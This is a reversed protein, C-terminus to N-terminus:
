EKPVINEMFELIKSSPIIYGLNSHKGSVIRSPIGLLCGKADVALGGSNGKDIQASTLIYEDTISSIIGETVILNYTDLGLEPYGLITVSEGLEPSYNECSYEPFSQTMDGMLVGEKNKEAAYIKLLAIDYEESDDFTLPRARYMGKPAGTKGNVFIVLCGGESDYYYNEDDQPFIHANTLVVGKSTLISGSGGSGPIEKNTSPCYINVVSEASDQINYVSEEFFLGYALITSYIGTIILIKKWLGRYHKPNKVVMKGQFVFTQKVRKSLFFYPIWIVASIIAGGVIRWGDEIVNIGDPIAFIIFVALADAAYFSIMWAPVFYQRRFFQILIWTAFIILFLSLLIDSLLTGFDSFFYIISFFLGICPLILWGGIKLPVIHEKKNGKQSDIALIGCNECFKQTTKVENGCKICFM